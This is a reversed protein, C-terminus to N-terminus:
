KFKDLNRLILLHLITSVAPVSPCLSKQTYGGATHLIKEM